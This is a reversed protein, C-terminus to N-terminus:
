SEGALHVLAEDGLLKLVILTDGIRLVAGDTVNVRDNVCPVGSVLTGNASTDLLWAEGGEIRLLAHDTSAKPDDLCIEVDDRRGIRTRGERLLVASAPGSPPMLIAAGAVSPEEPCALTVVTARRASRPVPSPAPPVAAVPPPAVPPSPKEVPAPPVPRDALPPVTQALAPVPPPRVPAPEPPSRVPAPEPAPARSAVIGQAAIRFPDDPDIRTSRPPVGTGAQRVVSPVPGLMTKRKESASGSGQQGADTTGELRAGCYECVRSGAPNTFYCRPCQM